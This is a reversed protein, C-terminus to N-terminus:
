SERISSTIRVGPPSVHNYRIETTLATNPITGLANWSTGNNASYQFQAANASTNASVVLNGSDDYARYYLTPVSGTYTKVLRFATRTPSAGGASTNDVSGVWNESLENIASYLLYQEILQTSNTSTSGMVRFMTVFQVQDVGTVASLNATNVSVFTFTALFAAIGANPDVNFNSTRYGVRPTVTRSNLAKYNHITKCTGKNINVVPSLVFSLNNSQDSGVDMMLVGRQGVSTNGLFLWGRQVTMSVNTIAGFESPPFSFGVENKLVDNNGFVTGNPDNNILQKAMTRGSSTLCYFRDTTQDYSGFSIAPTLHANAFKNVDLSTTTTVQSPLTVAGSTIDSLKAAYLNTTTMFTLCAFGSLSTHALKGVRISNSATIITGALAVFTGTVLTFNSASEGATVTGSPPSAMSFKYIRPLAATGAFAYYDSITGGVTSDFDHGVATTLTQAGVVDVNKYVVKNLSAVSTAYPYTILSSTVFDTTPVGWCGFLGGNAATTHTSTFAFVMAAPNTDDVTMGRLTNTSGAAFTFRLSGLWAGKEGTNVNYSYMAVTLVSAVFGLSVFLRGNPTAWVGNTITLGTDDFLDFFQNPILGVSPVSDIPDPRIALRKSYFPKNQDYAAPETVPTTQINFPIVKM